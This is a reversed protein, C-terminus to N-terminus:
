KQEGEEGRSEGLGPSVKLRGRQKRGGNRIKGLSCEKERKAKTGQLKKLRETM